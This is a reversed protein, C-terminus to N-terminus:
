TNSQGRPTPPPVRATGADHNAGIQPPPKPKPHSAPCPHRPKQQSTPRAMMRAHERPTKNYEPEGMPGALPFTHQTGWGKQHEGQSAVGCQTGCRGIRVEVGWWPNKQATAFGPPTLPTPVTSRGERATWCFGQWGWAGVRGAGGDGKCRIGPLNPRRYTLRHLELEPHPPRRGRAHPVRLVGRVAEAIGLGM